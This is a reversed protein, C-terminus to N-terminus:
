PNEGAGGPPAALGAPIDPPAPPAAPPWPRAAEAEIWARIWRPLTEPGPIPGIEAAVEATPVIGAASTVAVRFLGASVAEGRRWMSQEVYLFRPDRGAVRSALTVRHFARVRRRYRLSSGAIAVSWGRRRLAAILGIRQFMPIRGLDYLTLALGNNLEGWPDLDWPWCLHRSVHWEGPALPGQRRARAMALAFRVVPYM